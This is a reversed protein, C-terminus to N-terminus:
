FGGILIVCDCIIDVSVEDLYFCFDLTEKNKTKKFVMKDARDRVM